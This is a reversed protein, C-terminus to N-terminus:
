HPILAHPGVTSPRLVELCATKRALENYAQSDSEKLGWPLSEGPPAQRLTWTISQMTQFKTASAATLHVLLLQRQPPLALLPSM